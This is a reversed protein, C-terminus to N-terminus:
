PILRGRMPVPRDDTNGGLGVPIRRLVTIFCRLRESISTGGGNRRHRHAATASAAASWASIGILVTLKPACTHVARESLALCCVSVVLFALACFCCVCCRHCRVEQLWHLRTVFTRETQLLEQIALRRQRLGVATCACFCVSVCVFLLCVFLCVLLCTFLCVLM